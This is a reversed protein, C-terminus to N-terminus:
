DTSHQAQGQVRRLPSCTSTGVPVLPQASAMPPAKSRRTMSHTPSLRYETSFTVADPGPWREAPPDERDPQEQSAELVTGRKEWQRRGCLQRFSFREFGAAGQTPMWKGHCPFLQCSAMLKTAVQVFHQPWLVNVTMWVGQIKRLAGPFQTSSLLSRRALLRECSDEKQEGEPM